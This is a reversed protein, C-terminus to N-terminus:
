RGTNGGFFGFLPYLVAELIGGLIGTLGLFAALIILLGLLKYFGRSGGYEVMKREAFEVRGFMALMKETKIVLFAGIAIVILGVLFKM